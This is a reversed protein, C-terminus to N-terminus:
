RLGDVTIPRPYWAGRRPAPGLGAQAAGIAQRVPPGKERFRGPQADLCSHLLRELQTARQEAVHEALTRARGAAAIEQRRPEPLDLIAMVEEACHAILVERGPAFVEGMGPWEDSIVPAGCATAEFLRVSPSYGSRVMEARTVNLAWGLSSYFDAHEHPALHELRDVNGPWSIEAPFQAGAVIFRRDPCRRAVDVLLCELTSQRDSSYTGIYGIDWRRVAGTPRYLSPDVSCYLAEARRAGYQTQLRRLAPGGTFSLYLDFLTIATPSLYEFDGTSLKGMTVPTDIDYFCLLGRRHRAVWDIVRTAEPVYSGVVVADARAVLEPHRKLEELSGYISLNCFEPSALDRHTAYWPQNRELFHVEHGRQALGRLLARYTTAHGNGWSSSLSLGLFVLRM